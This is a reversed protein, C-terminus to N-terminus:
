IMAAAMAATSENSASPLECGSLLQVLTYCCAKEMYVQNSSFLQLHQSNSSTLVTPQLKHTMTQLKHTTTLLKQTMSPLKQTMSLLKQTTILLRHKGAPVAM